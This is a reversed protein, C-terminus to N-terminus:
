EVSELLLYRFEGNTEVPLKSYDNWSCTQTQPILIPAYPDLRKASVSGVSPQPLTWDLSDGAVLERGEHLSFAQAKIPAHSVDRSWAEELNTLFVTFGRKAREAAVIAAVRELDALCDFRSLNTPSGSSLSFKENEHMVSLASKVYKLEIATIAGSEPNRM